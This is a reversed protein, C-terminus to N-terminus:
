FFSFFFTALVLNRAVIFVLTLSFELLGEGDGAGGV